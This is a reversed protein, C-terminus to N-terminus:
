EKQQKANLKELEKDIKDRKIELDRKRFEDAIETFSEKLINTHMKFMDSKFKMPCYGVDPYHEFPIKVWVGDSEEKKPAEKLAEIYQTMLTLQDIVEQKDM